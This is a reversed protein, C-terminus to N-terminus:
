SKSVALYGRAEDHKIDAPTGGREYFDALNSAEKYKEYRAHSKGRKPNNQQFKLVVSSDTCRKTRKRKKSSAARAPEVRGASGAATAAAARAKAPPPADADDDDSEYVDMTEAIDTGSNLPAAFSAMDRHLQADDTPPPARGYKAINHALTSETQTRSAKRVWAMYDAPSLRAYIKLSEATSWRALAQITADGAGNALLACAHEVRCSHFSVEAARRKGLAAVALAHFMRDAHGCDLPNFETDCVFLPVLQRDTPRPIAVELKALHAAANCLDDSMFPLYVPQNGFIQATPDAKSPPPRIVAADGDQLQYGVPLSPVITFNQTGNGLRWSLNERSMDAFEFAELSLLDAKRFASQRGTTLAADFCVGAISSRDVHWGPAATGDPVNLMKVCDSNGLPEKREEILADQGETRLFQNNLGKLALSLHACSVMDIQARKHIRRVGAVVNLASQPKAKNRSRKRPKMNRHTYVTFARMMFVERMHGNNDAGTNAPASDRWYPTGLIDCFEKWKRWASKDAGITRTAASDAYTDFVDDVLSALIGPDAPRLALKSSDASLVELLHRHTPAERPNFDGMDRRASPPPRPPAARMALPPAMARQASAAAQATETSAGIRAAKPAFPKVDNIDRSPSHCAAGLLFRTDRKLAPSRPARASKPPSRSSMPMRPAGDGAAGGSSRPPTRPEPKPAAMRRSQAPSEPTRDPSRAIAPPSSAPGSMTRRPAAGANRTPTSPADGSPGDSADNSRQAVARAEEVPNLSRKRPTSELRENAERVHRLLEHARQPPQLPTYNVRLQRALASILADYGRSEADAFVNGAGYVHALELVFDPTNAEPMDKLFLTVFQMLSSKSRLSLLAGVSSISDSGLVVRHVHKEHGKDSIVDIALAPIRPIFMMLSVAIAIYELVAIPLQLPGVVDRRMLPLRWAHGHMYGGLGPTATGDKAADMFVYWTQSVATIPADGWSRFVDHAMMGPQSALRTHFESARLVMDDTYPILASPQGHLLRHPYYWGFLAHPKLGLCPRLHELLGSLKEYENFLVNKDRSMVRKLTVCARLQKEKPIIAHGTTGVAVLGTWKIAAGIARKTVVAMRSGSRQVFDGWVRLWAVARENGCVIITPDDTYMHACTLTLEVRGTLRELKRREAILSRQEATREPADWFANDLDRAIGLLADIIGHAFRQAINSANSYGFGLSLESVITLRPDGTHIMDSLAWCFGVKWVDFPALYFQNFFSAFDDGILLVGLDFTRGIERLVCIDHLLDSFGPKSEWPLKTFQRSTPAPTPLEGIGLCGTTIVSDNDYPYQEQPGIINKAGIAENLPTPRIMQGDVLGEKRWGGADSTRRPKLPQNAKPVSGQQIHRMPLFPLHEHFAVYGLDRIKVLETDMNKYGPPLSTLHPLLVIQLPVNAEFTVGVDTIQSVMSKDKSAQLLEALYGLDLHTPLAASFDLPRFCGNEDKTRMDWVTGQAEDKFGEQGICLPEKFERFSVLYNTRKEVDNQWDFSTPFVFAEFRILEALCRRLWDDIRTIAWDHLIDRRDRPRYTSTQALPRAVPETRPVPDRFAFPTTRLRADPPSDLGRLSEPVTSLDFPTCQASWERVYRGLYDDGPERQLRDRLSDEAGRIEQQQTAWRAPDGAHETQAVRVVGQRDAGTPLRAGM